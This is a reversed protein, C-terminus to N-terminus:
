IHPGKCHEKGKHCQGSTKLNLGFLSLQDFRDLAILTARVLSRAMSSAAMFCIPEAARIVIITSCSGSVAGKLGFPGLQHFQGFAVLTARILKSAGIAPAAWVGIPKAARVIPTSGRVGITRLGKDKLFLLIKLPYKWDLKQGTLLRRLRRVRSPDNPELSSKTWLTNRVSLLVCM